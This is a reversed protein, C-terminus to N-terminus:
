SKTISSVSMVINSTVKRTLDHDKDHVAAMHLVALKCNLSTSPAKFFQYLSDKTIRLELIRSGGGVGADISNCEVFCLSRPSAMKGAPSCQVDDVNSVKCTFLFYIKM